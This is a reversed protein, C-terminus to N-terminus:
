RELDDIEAKLEKSKGILEEMKDIFEFLDAQTRFHVEVGFCKIKYKTVENPHTYSLNTKTVEYGKYSYDMDSLRPKNSSNRKIPM